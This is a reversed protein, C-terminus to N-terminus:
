KNNKNPASKIQRRSQKGSISFSIARTIRAAHKEVLWAAIAETEKQNRRSGGDTQQCHGAIHLYGMAPLEDIASKEGRKPQLKDKYCLANCYAIIEDFCRRHEYLFM